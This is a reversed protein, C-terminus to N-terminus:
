RQDRMTARCPSLLPREVVDFGPRNLANLRDKKRTQRAAAAIAAMVYDFMYCAPAPADNRALCLNPLKRKLTRHGTIFLMLIPVGAGREDVASM